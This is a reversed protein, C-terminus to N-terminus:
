PTSFIAKETGCSQQSGEMLGILRSGEQTAKLHKKSCESKEILGKEIMEKLNKELANIGTKFGGEEGGFENKFSNISHEPNEHLKQLIAKSLANKRQQELSASSALNIAKLVGNHARQLFFSAQPATYNSKTIEAEIYMKREDSPIGHNGAKTENMVTLNLLWRLGDVLASSGRANNQSTGSNASAKNTHHLVIVTAGTKKSVYELAEVFRTVDEAANENGGRFRSAPDVIILKLDNLPEVAKLLNDAYSTKIVEKTKGDTKTMLNDEGVMSKIYLNSKLLKQQEETLNELEIIANFRYHIEAKDDEAFLCLVEGIKAEGQQFFNLGAAVSVALNLAFYSKGTGGAAVIGGVKGLPLFGPILWKRPPPSTNLFTDVKAYELDFLIGREENDNAETMRERKNSYRYKKARDYISRYTVGNTPACDFSDWKEKLEHEGKYKSSKKSWENWRSFGTDGFSNKLAMGVEIWTSYDDSPISFLAKKFENLNTNPIKWSFSAPKIDKTPLTEKVMPAQLVNRQESIEFANKIEKYSYAM